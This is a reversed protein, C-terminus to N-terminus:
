SHPAASITWTRPLSLAHVRAGLLRPYDEAALWTTVVRVHRLSANQILREFHARMPGKGTVVCLLNPFATPDAVKCVDYEEPPRPALTHPTHTTHTHLHTYTHLLALLRWIRVVPAYFRTLTVCTTIPMACFFHNRDLHSRYARAELKTVGTLGTVEWVLRKLLGVGRVRAVSVCM